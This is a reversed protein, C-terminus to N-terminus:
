NNLDNSLASAGTGTEETTVTGLTDDSSSSESSDLAEIRTSALSYAGDEDDPDCEMATEYSTRATDTDGEIEQVLGLYAWALGCEPYAETTEELENQAATYDSQYLKCLAHYVRVTDSDEIELYDDFYGEAKTLLENVQSVEDDTTAYYGAYTGCELYATGCNMLNDLNDPDDALTDELSTLTSSYLSVVDDVSSITTESGSTAASNSAAIQACSPLILSAGMLIAFLVVVITTLVKRVNGRKKQEVKEAQQKPSDALKAKAASKKVHQAAM